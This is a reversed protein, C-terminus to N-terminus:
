GRVGDNRHTIFMADGFSFFRYGEAVTERYVELTQAHGAFASVLMLLTSEPLHFNTILADAVKFQYGPTVFLRSEGSYPALGCARPAAQAATELARLTTTGVCIVRGGQARTCEIASVVSEPVQFWEAHMKHESLDDARVPAFTGLGVHLTLHALAVGKQKIKALLQHDFHLGATPAAASGPHQAYVTQYRQVDEETDARRIYPPLPVHGHKAMLTPLDASLGKVRYVPKQVATITLTDEGVHITAGLKPAKSAKIMATASGDPWLREVLVEVAGGSAKQGLLRANQVRTDNFVLLDTARLHDVLNSFVGHERQHRIPDWVLLRSGSRQVTPQLAIQSEPLTYHYDSRRTSM